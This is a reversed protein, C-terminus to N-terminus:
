PALRELNWRGDVLRFVLRDHLRSPRGQWFEFRDPVLRFGGWHEPRPVEEPFRAAAEAELKELEARSAVVQSQPSAWGNVQSAHPRMSWYEDSEAAPIQEIRGEVRVQRDFEKWHFLACAFPDGALERGKRSDGNTFFVLGQEDFEKVLVIRSSPRGDADVTSLAMANADLVGAENVEDFWRTFQEVPSEAVDAEDLPGAEYNRRM